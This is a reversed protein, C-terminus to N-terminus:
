DFYGEDALYEKLKKRLRTLRVRVANESIGVEEAIKPFSKCYFVRGMFILRDKRSRGAIFTNVAAILEKMILEDEPVGINSAIERMESLTDLFVGGGRKATRLEKWRNLTINRTLAVLYGGVNKPQKEPFSEWALLLADNVCERATQEDEIIRMSLSLCLEGYMREAEAVATPDRRQFMGFLEMDEM